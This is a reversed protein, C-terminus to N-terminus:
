DRKNLFKKMNENLVDKSIRIYKLNLTKFLYEQNEYPVVMEGNSDFTWQGRDFSKHYDHRMIIGNYPDSVFNLYEHEKEIDDNNLLFSKIKAVEFIHAAEAENWKAILGEKSGQDDELDSYTDNESNILGLEQRNKFINSKFKSRNNKIKDIIDKKRRERLIYKDEIDESQKREYENWVDNIFNEINNNTNENICKIITAYTGSIGQINIDKLVEEYENILHLLKSTKNRTKFLRIYQNLKSLLEFRFRKKILLSMLISYAFDRIYQIHSFCANSILKIILNYRNKPNLLWKIDYSLNIKGENLIFDKESKYGKTQIIGIGFGCIVRKYQTATNLACGKKAKVIPTIDVDNLFLNYVENKGEVTIENKNKKFYVYNNIELDKINEYLRDLMNFIDTGMKWYYSQPLTDDNILLNILNNLNDIIENNM